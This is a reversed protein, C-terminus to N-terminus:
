GTLRSPSTEVCARPESWDAIAAILSAMEIPKAVVGQFMALSQAGAASSIDASFALIPTARNPGGGERIRRTAMWGDVGPMRLDMLILEFPRAAAMAVAAEGGDALSLEVGLPSLLSRVLERNASNDDALLVQLGELGGLDLHAGVAPQPADAVPAPIEFWFCSGEGPRSEVGITGEMAEVLGRCIALGLGSGGHGRSVRADVQSFRQFLKAQDAAELGPGTDRVVFALRGSAYGGRVEIGGAETFKVANGVLNMLVQRLRDFDASVGAPLGEDVFSLSLGKAGAQSAFLDIVDQVCERPCGPAPRIALGEAELRSFDLVDNVLALLNRSAGLVRGAYRRAEPDLDHESLLSAFGLISTLPTRIEHSMNAIFESKVRAAAEAEALAARLAEAALRRQRQIAAVQLNLGSCVAVFLQTLILRETWGLGSLIMPWHGFVAATFALTAVSLVLLAAGLMELMMCATLATIPVLFLLPYRGQAMVAAQLAAVGVVTAAGGLTVPREAVYRRWDALILVCPTVIVLGLYDALTWVALQSTMERGSLLGLLATSTLASAGAGALAVVAGIALDAIGGPDFGRPCLRRLAASCILVELANAGSLALAPPWADGVLLDAALNGAFGAMVWLPWGRGSSRLVVALTVANAVWIPTVQGLDRPAYLAVFAAAFV